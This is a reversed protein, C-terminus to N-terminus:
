RMAPAARSEGRKYQKPFYEKGFQWLYQDLQKLDFRELNYAKRFDLVVRKFTPYDRLEDNKFVSFRDMDRFYILVKEVFSDFIPFDFPM